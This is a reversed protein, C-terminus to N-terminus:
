TGACAPVWRETASVHLFPDRGGCPGLKNRSIHESRKSNAPLFNLLVSGHLADQGAPEHVLGIREADLFGIHRQPPAAIKMAVVLDRHREAAGARCQARRELRGVLEAPGQDVRDRGIGVRRADDGVVREFLDAAQHELRGLPLLRDVAYQQMQVARHDDVAVLVAFAFQQSPQPAHQARVHRDDDGQVQVGVDSLEHRVIRARQDREAGVRMDVLVFAGPLAGFQEFARHLALDLRARHDRPPRHEVPEIAAAM